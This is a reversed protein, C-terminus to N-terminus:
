KKLASKIYAFEKETIYGEKELDKWTTLDDLVLGAKHAAYVAKVRLDDYEKDDIIEADKMAKYKKIQDIPLGEEEKAANNEAKTIKIPGM